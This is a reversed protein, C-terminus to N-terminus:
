LQNSAKIISFLYGGHNVQGIQYAPQQNKM